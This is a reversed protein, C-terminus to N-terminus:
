PPAAVPARTLPLPVPAAAPRGRAEVPMAGGPGVAEGGVVRPPDYFPFNQGGGAGVELGVGHAQGVTERRLPDFGRRVLPRDMMWNYLAAFRPSSIDKMGPASSVDNSM